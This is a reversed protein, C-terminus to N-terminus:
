AARRSREELEKSYVYEVYDLLEISDPGLDNGSLEADILRLEIDSPRADYLDPSLRSSDFINMYYSM